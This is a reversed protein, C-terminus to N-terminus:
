EHQPVVQSMWVSFFFLWIRYKIRTMGSRLEGAAIRISIPLFDAYNSQMFPFGCRISHTQLCQLVHMPNIPQLERESASTWRGLTRNVTSLISISFEWRSNDGHCTGDLLLLRHSKKIPGSSNQPLYFFTSPSLKVKLHRRPWGPDVWIHLM